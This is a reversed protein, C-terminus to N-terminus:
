KYGILQMVQQLRGNGIQGTQLLYRTIQKADYMDAPVNFGKGKLYTCPDAKISGLERQMDAQSPQVNQKQSKGLANFLSM